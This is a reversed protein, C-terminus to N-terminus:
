YFGIRCVILLLEVDSQESEPEFTVVASSMQQHRSSFTLSPVQDCLNNFMVLVDRNSSNLQEVDTKSTHREVHACTNRAIRARENASSAPTRQRRPYIGDERRVYYPRMRRDM